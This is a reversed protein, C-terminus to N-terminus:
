QAAGIRFGCGVMNLSDEESRPGFPPGELLYSTHSYECWTRETLQRKIRVTGVLGHGPYMGDDRLAPGVVLEASTSACGALCAFLLVTPLRAM